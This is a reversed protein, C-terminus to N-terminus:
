DAHQTHEATTLIRDVTLLVQTRVSGDHVHTANAWVVVEVVADREKIDLLQVQPAPEALVQPTRSLHEPLESLLQLLTSGRPYTLQLAVKRIGSRRFNTIAANHVLHNPIEVQLGDVTRLTTAHLRMAVVEGHYGAIHVEDGVYYPRRYLLFLGALHSTAVDKVALGAIVGTAGLGALFSAAATTWGAQALAITGGVVLVTAYVLTGMLAAIEPPLGLREAVATGIGRLRRALVITALVIGFLLLLGPIYQGLTTMVTNM